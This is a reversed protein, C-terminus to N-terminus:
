GKKPQPTVGSGRVKMFRNLVDFWFPAGLAIAFTSIVLGFLKVVWDMPETPLTKWGFRLGSDVISARAQHYADAADALKQKADALAKDSLSAADRATNVPIAAAEMKGVAENDVFANSQAILQARLEPTTYLATALAFTDVNACVVLIGSAILAVTQQRRKVWGSARDMTADFQTEVAKRFSILDQEGQSVFTRFLEKVRSVRATVASARGTTVADPLMEIAGALSTEPDNKLLLSQIVRGVVDSPIYSPRGVSGKSLAQVLPHAYFADVFSKDTELEGNLFEKLAAELNKSRLRMWSSIAEVIATCALAFILYITILGILVDISVIGFM